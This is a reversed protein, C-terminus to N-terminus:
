QCSIKHVSEGLPPLPLRCFTSDIAVYIYRNWFNWGCFPFQGAVPPWSFKGLTSVAVVIMWLCWVGGLDRVYNITSASHQWGKGAERGNGGFTVDDMFGSTCLTACRWRLIVSGHGCPIQICSKTGIPGATRSVHERVSLCVSLCVPQHSYKAGRGPRLLLTFLWTLSLKLLLCFWYYVRVNGWDYWLPWCRETCQWDMDVHLHSSDLWRQIICLCRWNFSNDFPFSHHLQRYFVSCM